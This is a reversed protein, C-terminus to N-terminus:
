WGVTRTVASRPSSRCGRRGAPRQGDRRHGATTTPEGPNAGSTAPRAGAPVARRGAGLLAPSPSTEAPSAVWPPSIRSVPRSRHFREITRRVEVLEDYLKWAASFAEATTPCYDTSRSVDYALGRLEATWGEDTDAPADEYRSVYLLSGIPGAENRIEMLLPDDTTNLQM